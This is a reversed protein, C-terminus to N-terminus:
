KEYWIVKFAECYNGKGTTLGRYKNLAIIADNMQLYNQSKYLKLLEIKKNIQKDINEIQNVDQLPSWIEYEFVLPIKIKRKVFNLADRVIENTKKHDLDNEESNPIYIQKPKTELIVKVIKQIINKNATIERDKQKLFIPKASLLRCVKKTETERENKTEQQTKKPNGKEGSTMFVIKINEKKNKILTGGLGLLEDDPHPAFVLINM